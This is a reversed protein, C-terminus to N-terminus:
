ADRRTAIMQIPAIHGAEINALMNRFKVPASAGLILHIGLPPPGEQTGAATALARQFFTRSFDSRDEVEGVDFGAGDLLARMEDATTLHSTEPTEAWPVPFTPEGDGGKMVDYICFTAGPKVVRAIEAYLATRDPINMAVHLTIAADFAGDEFPMDLASAVEFAIRDDLGTLGTLRQAVEIFEPTLDIGTVRCGIQTAIYRAAGGIGCGVDLVHAEAGPDPDPDLGLGLGLKAVAHATAERGGIHFEDVPALDDPQLRDPDAGSAALGAMIRALLGGDGYHRAVAAEIDKM